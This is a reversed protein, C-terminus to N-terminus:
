QIFMLFDNNYTTAPSITFPDTTAGTLGSANVDLSCSGTAVTLNMNTTTFTGSSEAGSTTGNLTMGTCTGSHKTFTVTDTNTPCTTGGSNKSAVTVTGISAGIIANSPQATIALHDATCSAADAFSAGSWAWEGFSNALNEVMAESSGTVTKYSGDVRSSTPAEDLIQTQGSGFTNLTIGNSTLVDIALEGSATSSITGGATASTGSTGGSGSLATSAGGTVTVCAISGGHSLAGSFTVACTQAGASPTATSGFISTKWFHNTASTQTTGNQTLSVGGYTVSSITVSGTDTWGILVAVGSPTGAPTHTLTIVANSNTTQFSAADFTAHTAYAPVSIGLFLLAALIFRNM